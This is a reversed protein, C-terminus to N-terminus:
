EGVASHVADYNAILTQMKTNLTSLQALTIGFANAIQQATFTGDNYRNTIWRAVPVLAEGINNKYALRAYSVLDSIAANVLRTPLHDNMVIFDCEGAVIEAWVTIARATLVANKDTSQDRDYEIRVVTGADTTHIEVTRIRGDAQQIESAIISSAIAM